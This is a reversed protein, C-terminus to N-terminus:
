FVITVRVTVRSGGGRDRQGRGAGSVGSGCPGERV